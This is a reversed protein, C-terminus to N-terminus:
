EFTAILGYSDIISVEYTVGDTWTPTSQFTITSGSFTLAFESGSVTFRMHYESVKDAIDNDTGLTITLATPDTSWVNFVNAQITATTSTQYEVLEPAAIDKTTDGIKIKDTFAM